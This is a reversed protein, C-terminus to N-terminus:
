TISHLIHLNPNRSLSHLLGSIQRHVLPWRYWTDWDSNESVSTWGLIRSLLHSGAMCAVLLFSTCSMNKWTASSGSKEYSVAARVALGEQSSSLRARERGEAPRKEYEYVGVQLGLWSPSGWLGRLEIQKSSAESRSRAAGRLPFAKPKGRDM